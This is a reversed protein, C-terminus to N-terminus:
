QHLLRKTRSLLTSDTLQSDATLCSGQELSYVAKSNRQTHRNTNITGNIQRIKSRSACSSDTRIRVDTAKSIADFFSLNM